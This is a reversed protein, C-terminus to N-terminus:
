QDNVKGKIREQIFEYSEPYAEKLRELGKANDEQIKILEQLGNAEHVQAVIKDTFQLAKVKPDEQVKPKEPEKPSEDSDADVGDDIAFLGCLAYKRAYSSAAGTVQAVDMGKKTLDERAYAVTQVKGSEMELSATAKVYVREGIMTIEDSLALFADDPM